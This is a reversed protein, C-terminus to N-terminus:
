GEVPEVAVLHCLFNWLIAGQTGWILRGPALTWHHQGAGGTGPGAQFNAALPGPDHDPPSEHSRSHVGERMLASLPIVAVEAVERPDPRLEASPDVIGVHVDLVFGTSFPGHRDLEGVLEVLAPDLGLEEHAERLATAASDADIGPDVRGGPLVWDGRHYLMTEPRKTFVVAAEGGHDVVPLLSAAPRTDEIGLHYTQHGPAPLLRCRARVDDVTLRRREPPLTLWPEEV